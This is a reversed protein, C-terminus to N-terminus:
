NNYIKITQGIFLKTTNLSNTSIIKDKTLGYNKCIDDLTEMPRVFHMKYNNVKIEVVEGEYLPINPNNRLLNEKCTNFKEYLYKLTDGQKIRYVFQKELNIM